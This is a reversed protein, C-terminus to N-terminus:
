WGLRYIVPLPHHLVQSQPASQLLVMMKSVGDKSSLFEKKKEEPSDGNLSGATEMIVALRDLHHDMMVRGSVWNHITRPTVLDGFLLAVQRHTLGVESLLFKLQEVPKM